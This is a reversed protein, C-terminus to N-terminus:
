AIKVQDTIHLPLLHYTTSYFRFLPVHTKLADGVVLEINKIGQKAFEEEALETFSSEFELGTVQGDPGVAHSWLMSSLGVYVGIELVAACM